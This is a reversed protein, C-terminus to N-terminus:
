HGFLSNTALRSILHKTLRGSPHSLGHTTNFIQKRLTKSEASIDCYISTGTNNLRLKRLQLSHTGDQLLKKLKKDTEQQRALEETTVIISMNTANMQSLADAITNNDGKIYIIETSFQSIFDLQRTKRPTSKSSKQLFAYTLSKHDTKILLKRGEVLQQFFKLGSYMAQLERDGTPATTKKLRALNRRFSDLPSGYEM